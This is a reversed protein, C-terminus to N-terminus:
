GLLSTFILSRYVPIVPEPDRGGRGSEICPEDSAM